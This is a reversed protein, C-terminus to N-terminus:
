RRAPVSFRDFVEGAASVSEGDIRDRHLTIMIAHHVKAKEAVYPLGEVQDRLGVGWAGDGVYTVGDVHPEGGRLAKTRKYAHDHNEFAVRVAAEDFLPVWHARVRRSVGGSFARVSPYGPVHYVPLLHPVADRARLARALWETQEGAIPGSHDTDLMLISAYDGIDLVGYGPHGPFAWLAYFYPAFEARAEDTAPWVAGDKGLPTNYYYGGRVEHNGVGVVVPIVRGDDTVLTETMIDVYREMRGVKEPMGDEYALDGGWIIFAPDQKAVVRNMQAFVTGDGHMMDGGVAVLLPEALTAPLTRFAKVMAGPGAGDGIRFEYRTDPRLGTLEVRHIKRASFPFDRAAEPKAEVWEAAGDSAAERYVFTAPTAAEAGVQHWDIVQTTTPDQRWTLILGVLEARLGAGWGLVLAVVIFRSVASARRLLAGSISSVPARPIGFRGRRTSQAPSALPLSGVAQALRGSELATELIISM